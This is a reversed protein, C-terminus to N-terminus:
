LITESDFIRKLSSKKEAWPIQGQCKTPWGRKLNFFDWVTSASFYANDSVVLEFVPVSLSCIIKFDTEFGM